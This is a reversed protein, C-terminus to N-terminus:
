EATRRHNASRMRGGGGAEGQEIPPPGGGAGPGGGLFRKFVRGGSDEGGRWEPIISLKFRSTHEYFERILPHVRAPEFTPGALTDLSAVIGVDPPNRRFTGGRVAALQEVYDAGVYRSRAEFPVVYRLGAAPVEEAMIRVLPRDRYALAAAVRYVVAVAAAVLAPSLDGDLAELAVGVLAGLLLGLAVKLPRLGLLGLLAGSLVATLVTHGSGYVLGLLAGFLAMLLASSFIRQALAKPEAAGRRLGTLAEAPAYVGAGVAAGAAVGVGDIAAGLVAGSAGGLAAGWLVGDLVRGSRSRRPGAM